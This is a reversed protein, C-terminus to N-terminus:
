NPRTVPFSLGGNPTVDSAVDANPDKPNTDYFMTVRFSISAPNGLCSSAVTLWYGDPSYGASDADCVVGESGPRSVTGGFEGGDFYYQIDFDPTGDGNTDLSWTAFTSDGAWKPDTRPDTPQAVQMALSIKGPEYAAAARVIDARGEKIPDHTGDVVTDGAPDTQVNSHGKSGTAAPGSTATTAPPAATTGPRGSSPSTSAPAPRTTATTGPMRQTTATTGPAATTPTTVAAGGTTPTQAPASTVVTAPAGTARTTPSGSSGRRNNFGGGALVGDNRSRLPVSGAFLASHARGDETRVALAVVGVAMELAVVLSLWFILQRHRVAGV